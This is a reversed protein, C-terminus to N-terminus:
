SFATAGDASAVTSGNQANALRSIEVTPKKWGKRSSAMGDVNVAVSQATNHKM